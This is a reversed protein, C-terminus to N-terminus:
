WTCDLCYLEAQFWISLDLEVDDRNKREYNRCKACPCKIKGDQVVSPMSFAFDIFDKTKNYWEDTSKSHTWGSYM